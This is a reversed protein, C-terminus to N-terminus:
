DLPKDFTNNNLPIRVGFRRVVAIREISLGWAACQEDAAQRAGPWREDDYEDFIIVAGPSMHPLAHTLVDRTSEYLDCDVHLFAIREPLHADLTDAFFGPVIEVRVSHESLVSAPLGADVALSARILEPSTDTWGSVSGASQVRSGVDPSTAAPFGAFSDFAFITKNLQFLATASALTKLSGGRGVGCEVIEGPVDAVSSLLQFFGYVRVQDHSAAMPWHSHYKAYTQRRLEWRDMLSLTGDACQWALNALSIRQSPRLSRFLHNLLPRYFSRIRSVM